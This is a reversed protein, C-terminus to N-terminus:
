HNPCATGSTLARCVNLRGASWLSGTGSINDAYTELRARVEDNSRGNGNADGISAWILGAAGSVHPAAMSTGGAYGYSTAKMKNRHNPLTSYIGVGPAALEVAPGYNSYSARRDNNDTAAVAITNGYCAPCSLTQSGNNGAAAAVLAGRSVAYGIANQEAACAGGGLSMNIVRAGNDAAWTIGNAIASCSGSGNDGLVKVNLLRANLAVGAVGVSNSGFAAATGAVHTGHGYLDDVTGSSSFNRNGVIKGALDAHNQDIGTDLIAIRTATSGLTLAWAYPADIDADHDASSDPQITFADNQLGWDRRFYPDNPVFCGGGNGGSCNDSLATVVTDREATLVGPQSRYRGLFSAEAGAPVTIVAADIAEILDSVQGGAAAYAQAREADSADDAFSVILRGPIADAASAPTPKAASAPSAALAAGAVAAIAISFGRRRM